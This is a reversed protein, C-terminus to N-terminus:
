WRGGTAAVRQQGLVRPQLHHFAKAERGELGVPVETLFNSPVLGRQGRVEGMYFGDDDMDGYITVLDGTRFTLEVESDVNPSLETPDYDYLAIKRKMPSDEYIDGWREEREGSAGREKAAASGATSAAAGGAGGAEERFLEEAVREDDVQPSPSVGICGSCDLSVWLLSCVTRFLFPPLLGFGM